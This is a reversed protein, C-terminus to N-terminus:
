PIGRACRPCSRIPTPSTSRCWCRITRATACRKRRVSLQHARRQEPNVLRRGRATLHFQGSRLATVRDGDGADAGALGDDQAVSGTRRGRALHEGGLALVGQQDPRQFIAVDVTRARQDGHHLCQGLRLPGFEDHFQGGLGAGVHDHGPLTRAADRAPHSRLRVLPNGFPATGRRGRGFLTTPCPNGLHRSQRRRRHHPSPTRLHDAGAPDDDGQVLTTTLRKAADPKAAHWLYQEDDAWLAPQGLLFQGVQRRQAPM